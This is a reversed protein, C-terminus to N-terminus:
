QPPAVPACTSVGAGVIRFGISTMYATDVSGDSPRYRNVNSTGLSATYLYFDGGWFSFAWASPVPVTSLAASNSTAGTTKDIQAVQVPSTTFFGFLTGDGTGTLEASQGALSGSFPGIPSLTGTNTDIRALGASSATAAVYLTEEEGGAVDTSFGMGLREWGSPLTAAPTPECSADETSVRFLAGQSDFGDVYNVWAVANRDVAMSNPSLATPCDIYGIFTFQKTDPKFSYLENEDSLVYVLKAAESCNDGSGTNTGTGSATSGFLDGGAGGSGPGTNGAGDGGSGSGSSFENRSSEASCAVAGLLALVSLM